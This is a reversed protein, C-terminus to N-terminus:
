KDEELRFGVKIKYFSTAPLNIVETAGTNELIDELILEIESESKAIVTFWINFEDDREYNHTIHPFSNIYEITADLHEPPVKAAALTSTYGLKRPNLSAGLRRIYGRERLSQLREIVEGGGTGILEGVADFPRATVPFDQQLLNLLKRDTNDM